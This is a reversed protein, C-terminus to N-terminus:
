TNPKAQTAHHKWVRMALEAVGQVAANEAATLVGSEVGQRGLEAVYSAGMFMAAATRADLPDEWGAMLMAALAQATVQSPEVAPTVDMLLQTQKPIKTDSMPTPTKRLAILGKDPQNTKEYRRVINKSRPTPSAVPPRIQRPDVPPQIPRDPRGTDRIRQREKPTHGGWM